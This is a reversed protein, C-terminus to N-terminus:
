RRSICIQLSHVKPSCIASQISSAGLRRLEESDAPLHYVESYNNMGRGFEYRYSQERLSSTMSYVSPAPSLSRTDWELSTRSSSAVPSHCFSSRSSMSSSTTNEGSSQADDDTFVDQFIASKSPPSAPMIITVPWSYRIIFYSLHIYKPFLGRIKFNPTPCASQCAMIYEDNVTYKSKNACM